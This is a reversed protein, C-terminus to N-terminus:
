RVPLSWRRYGRGPLGPDMFPRPTHYQVRFGELELMFASDPRAERMRLIVQLPNLLDPDFELFKSETM